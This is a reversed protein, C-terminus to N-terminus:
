PLQHEIKESNALTTGGKISKLVAPHATHFENLLNLAQVNEVPEWSNESEPYGKWQILYQLKKQRRYWQSVLVKAVEWEPEGDILEPTPHVYNNGYQKTEHYPSLLSAHFTNHLQWRPPLNLQYTVPSIVETVRFLGFCKPHLKHM